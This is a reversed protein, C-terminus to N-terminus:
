LTSRARYLAAAVIRRVVADYTLGAAAAAATFGADPALCPNANIDVIWPQGAADVRFDVRAYGRLNFLTWVQQAIAGLQQTLEPEEAPSLTHRVTGRYAASEPLWKAEYDLIRPRDAPFDIFRIEAVPLVDVAHGDADDTALLSVNFERGDIYAEAFLATDASNKVQKTYCSGPM